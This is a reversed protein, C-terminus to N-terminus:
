TMFLYKERFYDIFSYFAKKRHSFKNKEEMNMQAFTFESGNPIFISDYGFGMEGKQEAIIVGECIGEFQINEKGDFFTLVTKFRATNDKAGKMKNLVLNINDQNCKGEGAYRASRVGPEGNLAKIELGTDEAFCMGKYLENVAIAKLLSNGEITNETEPIDQHFNIDSLKLIKLNDPMLASIEGLKNQNNTVFLLETM